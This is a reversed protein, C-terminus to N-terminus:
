ETRELAEVAKKLREAVNKRLSEPKVPLMDPALSLVWNEFDPKIVLKVEWQGEDVGLFRGPPNFHSEQLYKKLWKARVALVVTEPKEDPQRAWQGFTYKYHEAANFASRVFTEQTAQCRAIRRVALSKFPGRNGDERGIVYLTGVRLSLVYPFFLVGERDAARGSYNLRVAQCGAIAAELRKLTNEQPSAEAFPGHDNHYIEHGPQPATTEREAAERDKLYASLRALLPGFKPNGGAHLEKRINELGTLFHGPTRSADPLRYLTRRGAGQSEQELVYGLKRLDSLYRKVTRNDVGLSSSIQDIHVGQAHERLLEVLRHVKATKHHLADGSAATAPASRTM